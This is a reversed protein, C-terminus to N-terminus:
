KAKLEDLLTRDFFQEGRIKKEDIAPDRIEALVTKFGEAAPYPPQQFLRKHFRYSERLVVEIGHQAFLGRKQAIPLLVNDTSPSVYGARVKQLPKEAGGCEPNATLTLSLVGLLLVLNKGGGISNRRNV